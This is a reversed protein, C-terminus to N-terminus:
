KMVEFDKCPIEETASLPNVACKPETLPSWFHCRDCRPIPSPPPLPVPFEDDTGQRFLQSLVKEIRYGIDGPDFRM